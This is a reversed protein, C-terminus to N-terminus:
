SVLKRVQGDWAYRIVTVFAANKPRVLEAIALKSVTDYDGWLAQSNIIYNFGLKEVLDFMDRINKEDVGAFAEDLSIIRPADPRADSYRSYAASFLPIYMAMAKEGGSFQYFARDTLERWAASDKQYYLTFAFWQRYDLMERIIQHFGEGFGKLELLQKAREVKARFHTTIRVMDSEKLLRPDSRLLDVLDKTDLEDEHEATRPRWRIALKLGSSTDRESMLKNMEEVWHEARQIRARIIRGVSNMIIEEYLERDKENLIQKQLAVNEELRDSLFYPSVRKGGYEVSLQVRRAKSRLEEWLSPWPDGAADDAEQGSEELMLVTDMTLHYELLVGMEQQFAASLRERLTDRDVKEVNARGNQNAAEELIAEARSVIQAVTLLADSEAETREGPVLSQWFTDEQKFVELWAALLREARSQEQVQQGAERNLHELEKELAACEAVTHEIEEPLRRLREVLRGVRERIEAAGLEFLRAEVLQLRGALRKEEELLLNIEGKLEDVAAGVEQLHETLNAVERRAAQILGYVGEVKRLEDRYQRMRGQAEDYAEETLPLTLTRALERLEAKIRQWAELVEQVKKDLRAVEAERIQVQRQAAVLEDFGERVSQEAPFAEYDKDLREIRGQWVAREASLREREERLAAVEAELRAIERLRYQRRAEKGIFMAEAQPVAHGRLMGLTYSGEPGLSTSGAHDGDSVLITRLVEDVDAASVASDAAPTPDLYDALTHAVIQPQPRLVRDYQIIQRKLLDNHVRAPLILADLLGAERLASEIRERMAAPVEPKFEVAAYLPVHPLGETKLKRRTEDTLPHRPPEPEKKHRWQELVELTEKIKADQERLAHDLRLVEQQLADRTRQRAEILPQRLQEPRIREPFSWVRQALAQLEAETLRLEGSREHWAFVEAVWKSREEQLLDAWKRVHFQAEEWAKKAEGLTLDAEQYRERAQMESRLSRLVRLLKEEYDKAEQRWLAFSFSDDQARHLEEAAVAHNLFHTEEALYDLEALIGECEHRLRRTREEGQDVQARLSRERAQKEDLAQEKGRKQQKTKEAQRCLEAKEQEAKFVDHGALAEREEQLLAQERRLDAARAQWEALQRRREALSHEIEQGRRLSEDLRRQAKVVGEAKEWRVRHNYAAYVRNLRQLAQQERLLQDLQNKTQDMNEVTESLPRLEEDSLAPLSENLIEYIVTPRFDKSLKPSRLQILLKMLHDYDELSKFGFVHRNVLDMYERQNRTLVGGEGLQNQLERWSLPIKEPRGSANRELKYLLLERGIRRNDLVVFGWFDLPSQRKAKLGMGTTLYQNTGQRVYELYLYGTRENVESVDPEGLLYDEMKRARSGFPDLRDPTKRGDLLVPLFSQMTVSKGSGNAGRLLLKGDSFEFVEDDYYWFNFLGARNLQWRAQNM